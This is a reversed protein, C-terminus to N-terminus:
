GVARFRDWPERRAGLACAEAASGLWVDVFTSVAALEASDLPLEASVPELLATVMCEGCRVDRVPCTQCDVLM